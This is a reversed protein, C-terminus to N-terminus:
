VVGTILLVCLIVNLDACGLAIYAFVTALEQLIKNM